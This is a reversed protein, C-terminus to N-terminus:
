GNNAVDLLMHAVYPAMSAVNHRIQAVYCRSSRNTTNLPRKTAKPIHKTTNLRYNTANVISETENLWKNSKVRRLKYSLPKYTLLKQQNESCAAVGAPHTPLHSM